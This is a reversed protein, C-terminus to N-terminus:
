RDPLTDPRPRGTDPTLDAPRRATATITADPDRSLLARGDVIRLGAIGRPRPRADGLDHVAPRAPRTGVAHHDRRGQHLAADIIEWDDRATPDPLTEAM